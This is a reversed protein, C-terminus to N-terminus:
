EENESEFEMIFNDIIETLKSEELETLDMTLRKNEPTDLGEHIIDVNIKSFGPYTIKIASQKNKSKLIFASLKENSYQEIKINFLRDEYRMQEQYFVPAIVKELKKLFTQKFLKFNKQTSNMKELWGESMKTETKDIIYINDESNEAKSIGTLISEKAKEFSLESIECASACLSYKENETKKIKKWVCVAGEISTNPLLLFFSNTEGHAIVDSNRTSKKINNALIDQELNGSLPKIYLLVGGCDFESLNNFENNFVVDISKYTYCGTQSNIVNLKKLLEDQKKVTKSLSNKKLCWITRMLVEADDNNFVFYDAIGEDYANLVFEQEYQDLILLIEVNKTFNDHKITRILNLAEDKNEACYLLVTDPLDDKINAMAETYRISSISDIERLLVLKPKLNQAVDPSNTIILINNKASM